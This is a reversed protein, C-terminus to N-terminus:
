AIAPEKTTEVQILHRLAELATNKIKLVSSINMRIEKAIEYDCLGEWFSLYIVVLQESPLETVKERVLDQLETPYKSAKIEKTTIEKLYNEEEKKDLHKTMRAPAWTLEKVNM